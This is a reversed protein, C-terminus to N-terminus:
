AGQGIIEQFNADTRTVMMNIQIFEAVRTPKLYVDIVLQNADVIQGTNNSSDCVVLFDYLGRRGKVTRLFPDILGRLRARTFEDNFEFLAFRSASAIAKELVILLRRVNVRDFASPRTTATKQGFVIATGEGPISMIPNIANVYLADRNAKNPNFALKICNKIKGRELGAPAWWPDRNADTQAYLGAIDGALCMWRNVDNFKDYQYKLNGYIASYSGFTYFDTATPNATTGFKEIMNSTAVSASKGILDLDYYPAVVTFCDKRSESITSMKNLDASPPILINIDFKEPDGFLDCANQVDAQIVAPNVPSLGTIKLNAFLSLTTDVPLTTALADQDCVKVYVCSSSKNIIEEAFMNKNSTDKATENYSVIYKEALEYKSTNPNIKLIVVAFEGNAFEGAVIQPSYEFLSAFTATMLGSDLNTVGTSDFLLSNWNANTSCVAVVIDHNNTVYKEFFTLRYDGTVYSSLTLEATEQNYLGTQDGDVPIIGTDAEGFFGIGDTTNAVGLVAPTATGPEVFSAIGNTVASIEYPGNIWSTGNGGTIRLIKGVDGGVFPRQLSFAEDTNTWITLDNFTTGVPTEGQVIATGVNVNGAASPSVSLIAAGASVNSITYIGPTWDTGSTILIHRGIDASTFNGYTGSAVTFENLGDITLDTVSINAVGGAIFIGEPNGPGDMKLSGQTATEVHIPRVGNLSSAYQLFNWANYWDQYNSGTPKGFAAILDSESTLPIVQMAPGSDAPIIVGTKASPLNPITLALDFEKVDVSPSLSFAM